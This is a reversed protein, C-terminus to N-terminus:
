LLDETTYGQPLERCNYQSAMIEGYAGASRLAILDGRHCKNLKYEKAFVDSSECIPGVVDYIEEPEKSTLNDIQHYAQYLAPRLLDTMGADVIAFQKVTAQKVYLVRTILSGCQGVVARGLEFHLHQGERLKLNKEYTEFYAKFDPIPHADPAQYDIGLGGGVNINEVRIGEQELRDQLENIRACLAEFDEMELIQSGIHFHLGIFQVHEMKAAIGIVKEMDEMAIGFKNEALGTTINAHTHAGVNPNIRFSVRAVKQKQAALDNIVELEAISEVNFYAIDADLGLNIEWDSKGVGAYVIEKAPFGAALSARIEGGSVCDAGFGAQSIQKLVKPNANAKVAYHLHYNPKDGIEKKIADLTQQLIETDYYYFPTRIDKFKDASIKHMM